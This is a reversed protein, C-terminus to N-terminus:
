INTKTHSKTIQNNNKSNTTISFTKYKNQRTRDHNNQWWVTKPPKLQQLFIAPNKKNKPTRPDKLFSEKSLNNATSKILFDIFQKFHEM